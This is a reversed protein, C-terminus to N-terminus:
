LVGLTKLLFIFATITFVSLLHSVVVAGSALDGDGGMRDTVIYTNVATPMASVLTLTVIQEESLGAAVAAAATLIPVLVLKIASSKLLLSLNAQITDTRVSAGVVMLAMTSACNGLYGLSKMMVSPLQIRLAAVPMAILISLVMPNAFINKFIKGIKIGGEKEKVAMLIAGEINYAPLLIAMMVATLVTTRDGYLNQMLMLGLYAFNGRFCTHAFAGQKVQDRCLLNGLLWALLFQVACAAATVLTYRLDFAASLDTTSMDSFLKAPLLVYYVLSSARSVFDESFLGKCKLLYGLGILVFLPLSTNLSFLLNGLM